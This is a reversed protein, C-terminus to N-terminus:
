SCILWAFCPVIVSRVQGQAEIVALIAALFEKDAADLEVEQPFREQVQFLFRVEEPQTIHLRSSVLLRQIWIVCTFNDHWCLVPCTLYSM